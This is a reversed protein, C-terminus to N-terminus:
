SPKIDFLKLKNYLTKRDINLIKAAKSKNNGTQSLVNLIRDREAHNAVSKLSDDAPGSSRDIGYKIEEPIVDLEITSGETLLVARKVVNKLERLNGPWAYDKFRQLVEDSVQEVKRNLQENALEIFRNTFVTIDEKRNRLPNLTLSFENLRYYLDERFKGESVSQRLNENTAAIIRVDVEIDKSGGVKTYKREQLVRLLKLQIEYSLNGIEDLFLTGGDALKFRGERSSVAGTFAGKEHGFFESGAIDKPLAGCDIAVFPQDSRKSLRHIEKAVFEKGTGTEGHILVSMPSPAVIEMNKYLSASGPSEGKLYEFPTPASKKARTKTPKKAVEAEQFESNLAENVMNLLEEPYLPKTVYDFAGFKIVEVAMRIDSYGTIIIVPVKPRLAKMEKLLDLGNFDPLRFDSIILDFSTKAISKLAENGRHTTTVTFGKRELFRKLLTCIDVEDDIILIHSSSAM